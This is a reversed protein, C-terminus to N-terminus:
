LKNTILKWELGITFGLLTFAIGRRLQFGTMWILDIQSLDFELQLCITFRKFLTISCWEKKWEKM